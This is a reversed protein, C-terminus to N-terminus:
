VPNTGGTSGLNSFTVGSSHETCIVCEAPQGKRNSDVSPKLAMGPNTGETPRKPVRISYLYLDSYAVTRNPGIDVM